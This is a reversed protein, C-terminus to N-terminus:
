KDRRENYEVLDKLTRSDLDLTELSIRVRQNLSQFYDHTKDVGLFSVFCFSQDKEFDLLDDKIQFALGLNFGLETLEKQVREDSLSALVFPGQFCLAILEGTKLRHLKILDDLSEISNGHGLDLVQGRIM